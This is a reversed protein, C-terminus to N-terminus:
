LVFLGYFLTIYSVVCSSPYKESLIAVIGFFIFQQPSPSLSLPLLIIYFELTGLNLDIWLLLRYPLNKLFCHSYFSM